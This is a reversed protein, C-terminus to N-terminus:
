LQQIMLEKYITNCNWIAKIEGILKDNYVIDSTLQVPPILNLTIFSKELWRSSGGVAKQFLEGKTDTVVVHQYNQLKCALSLYESTVLPNFNWLSNAIVQAHKEINDQAEQYVYREYVVIFICFISLLIISIFATSKKYNM